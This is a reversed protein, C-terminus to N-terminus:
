GAVFAHITLADYQEDTLECDYFLRYYETIEAKVDYDCYEPYLEATLWILGLYRQVSPPSGMWNDPGEPIEIYRGTQIATIEKWADMDTVTGYISDRTFLVFDPDWLAIQEMTVENGSGRAVPNDVVALNNTLMDILEAHYSGKALVNLGKEGLVYLANVKNDGVQEMVSVTRKYVKECFQALEEGKDEKGLISGLKRFAEPMTALSAEIHVSPIQTQAELTDMDEVISDNAKGVDIILQPNVAALEEVNLNASGYLQGFYPLDFFADPIFGKASDTFKAALGVFMEPAIALLVVQSLPGSPVIATLEEPIDVERGCDDTIIRAAAASKQTKVAEPAGAAKTGCATLGFLMVAALLLSILRKKM